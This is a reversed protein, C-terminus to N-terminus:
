PSAPPSEETVILKDESSAQAEHAVPEGQNAPKSAAPKKERVRWYGTENFCTWGWRLWKLVSYALWLAWLLMMIRYVMMPLSLVWPQPLLALNRDQYWAFHTNDSGNGTVQMEPYGILSKEVAAFLCALAVITWIALLIQGANFATGELRNAYRKRYGLVLLWGVILAASISTAQTLGIGLLFWQVGTLPTVSVKSLGFALLAITVIIGWILIAPGVRPGGLALPWRDEPLYIKSYANVGAIGVDVDPMAFYTSIGGPQRWAINIQQRGPQLPLRLERGELRIPVEQGAQDGVGITVSQLIANEPLKIAHLGGRSSRLVLRLTDTASRLGPTVGLESSELTLSQGPAGLPKSIKLTVEEGPWPRWVPQWHGNGAQHRIVPIGTTEIHWQTSTDLHWEEIMDDQRAAKLALTPQQTLTSDWEIVGSQPSLNVQAAGKDVRPESSEISEGPLLPVSVFIPGEAPAIREVRTHVHWQLGLDLTRQVHVFSPLVTDHLSTKDNSAIRTLQLNDDAQGNERVGAVTWGDAKAEVRHPKLPLSLQVNETHGVAGQVVIQHVGPEVVIWLDGDGGRSLASAPKGDLSVSQIVWQAGGTPLPVATSVLAHAEIRVQLLEGRVDIQMRAISACNPLCDAPKSLEAKLQDLMDKDPLDGARSAQPTMLSLCGVLVLLSAVGASRGPRGPRTPPWAFPIGLLRAFLLAVLIVRLVALLASMSPSVLWLHIQQTQEVPGNWQLAYSRWQWDPLGPGTQVIANPDLKNLEGFNPNDIADKGSASRQKAMSSKSIFGEAPPIPPPPPAMLKAPAALEIAKDEAPAAAPADAPAPEAYRNAGMTPMEYGTPELVPYIAQRIQTLAFPLSFLALVLLTAARYGVALRRLRGNDPLVSLLGAGALVALWIGGPAGPEHYILALGVVATVGWPWGWLKGFALAAILVVFFDLLSWQAVWSGPAKDVGGAAILHWGPPLNLKASVSQFDQRWGTASLERANSELRSDAVIDANGNRVEMGSSQGNHTIFQDQGDVSARGLAAPASMEFRWSRHIAGKIHDRVTYGAGDFDLWIDRQLNLNDPAAEPDGRKSQNLSLADGPKLRFAPLSKWEDPMSVLKADVPAGGSPTIVRLENHAQFVWIEEDALPQAAQPLVVSTQPAMQRAAITLEWHGPRLQVRLKGDAELRTPLQSDLSVPTFGPLLVAPFVVERNKGSVSIELRTTLRLPIDDDVQRAVHLELREAGNEGGKAQSQLWLHGGQDLKPLSIDHGDLRLTVLGTQQPIQLSEPMADWKFSGELAHSGIQLAIGPLNNEGDTVAAPKGDVKVDQPWNEADGPLPVWVPRFVQVRQAFNGGQKDLTLSLTAPWTCQRTEGNNYFYPCQHDPVDRLVWDSWPRLPEPVPPATPAAMAAAAALLIAAISSMWTGARVFRRTIRM